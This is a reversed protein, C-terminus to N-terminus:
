LLQGSSMDVRVELCLPKRPPIGGGKHLDLVLTERKHRELLPHKVIPKMSSQKPNM